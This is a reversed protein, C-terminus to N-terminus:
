NDNGVERNLQELFQKSYEVLPEALEKGTKTNMYDFWSILYPIYDVAYSLMDGQPEAIYFDDIEKKSLVFPNVISAPDYDPLYWKPQMIRVIGMAGFGDLRDADQLIAVLQGEGGKSHHAIAYLLEEEEKQSFWDKDKLYEEVMQASVGAHQKKFEKERLRGIDHLLAAVCLIIVDEYGEGKAIKLAWNRVRFAHKWDHGPYVKGPPLIQKIYEEIEQIM